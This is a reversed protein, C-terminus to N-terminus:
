LLRRTGLLYQDSDPPNLFGCEDTWINPISGARWFPSPGPPTPMACDDFLKMLPVEVAETTVVGHQEM